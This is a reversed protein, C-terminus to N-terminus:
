DGQGLQVPGSAAPKLGTQGWYELLNRMLTILESLALAVPPASDELHTAVVDLADAVFTMFESMFEDMIMGKTEVM